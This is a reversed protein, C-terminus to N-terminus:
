AHEGDEEQEGAHASVSPVTLSGQLAQRVADLQVDLSADVVGIESELIASGKPLDSVAEVEIYHSLSRGRLAQQLAEKVLSAQGHHVRLVMRQQGQAHALCSRVISTVVDREPLTHLIKTLAQMVVDIMRGETKTMYDITRSVSSFMQMAAHRQSEKKGEEFGERKKQEYIADAERLTANAINRAEEVVQQADCLSQYSKHDIHQCEPALRWTKDLRLALAM